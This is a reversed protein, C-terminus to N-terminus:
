GDVQYMTLSNATSDLADAVRHDADRIAGCLTLAM